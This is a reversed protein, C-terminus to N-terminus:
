WRFWVELGQKLNKLPLITLDYPLEMNANEFFALSSDVYSCLKGNGSPIYWPELKAVDEDVIIIKNIIAM